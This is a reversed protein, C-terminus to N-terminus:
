VDNLGKMFNKYFSDMGKLLAETPISSVWTQVYDCSPCHLGDPKAILLDDDTALNHNEKTGCSYGHFLPQIQLRNIRKVEEDTFLSQHKM